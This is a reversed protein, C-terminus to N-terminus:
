NGHLINMFTWGLWGRLITYAMFAGYLGFLIVAKPRTLRYKLAFIGLTIASLVILIYRLERVGAEAGLDLAHGSRLTYILVPLGLCINIDFINSGFANSVAGSDDGKRAAMLSLFTDPVSTAAAALIVAVFYPAIKLIDAVEMVSKALFHCAIAVVTISIGITLWAMSKTHEYKVMEFVKWHGDSEAFGLRLLGPRKGTAFDITIGEEGQVCRECIVSKDNFPDCLQEPRTIHDEISSWFEEPNEELEEAANSDSFDHWERAIAVKDRAKVASWIRQCVGCLERREADTMARQHKKVDLWLLFIYGIYLLIFITGMWWTLKGITLFAILFIESLIFYGGDRWIVEKAVNLEPNKGKALRIGHIVFVCVAPIVIMNYIASGATTAVGSAYQDFVFLFVMTTFFEPM